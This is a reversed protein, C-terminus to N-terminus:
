PLRQFLRPVKAPVQLPNLLTPLLMPYGAMGWWLTPYGLEHETDSPQSPHQIPQICHQNTNLMYKTFPKPHSISKITFPWRGATIMRTDHQKHHNPRAHTQLNYIHTFPSPYNTCISRITMEYHMNIRNHKNFQQFPVIGLPFAQLQIPDRRSIPKVHDQSTSTHLRM